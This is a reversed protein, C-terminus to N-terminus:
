VLSRRDSATESRGGGRLGVRLLALLGAGIAPAACPTSSGSEPAFPGQSSPLLLSCQLPLGLPLGRGGALGLLHLSSMFPHLRDQLHLGGRPSSEARATPARTCKTLFMRSFCKSGARCLGEYPPGLEPWPSCRRHRM